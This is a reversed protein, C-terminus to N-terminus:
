QKTPPQLRQGWIALGDSVPKAGNAKAKTETGNTHNSNGNNGSAPAGLQLVPLNEWKAGTLLGDDPNPMAAPVIEGQVKHVPMDLLGAVGSPPALRSLGVPRHPRVKQYHRRKEWGKGIKPLLQARRENSQLVRVRRFGKALVRFYWLILGVLVLTILLLTVAPWWWDGFWLRVRVWTVPFTLTERWGAEVKDGIGLAYKGAQKNQSFVVLYYVSDEAAQNQIRQREWFDAQTWPETVRTLNNVNAEPESLLLGVNPPLSFTLRDLESPAPPPLGPGFLAVAPRFNDLGPERATNLQVKLFTGKPARFAYYDPKDSQLEAYFWQVQSPRDFNLAQSSGPARYDDAFVVIGTSAAGAQFLVLVIGLLSAAIIGVLIKELM